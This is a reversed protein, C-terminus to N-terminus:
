IKRGGALFRISGAPTQSRLCKSQPFPLINM